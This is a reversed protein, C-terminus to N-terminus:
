PDSAAFDEKLAELDATTLDPSFHLLRDLIDTTEFYEGACSAHIFGSPEFRAQDFFVLGIRWADKAIMERCCRCRARGTPSRHAGDIRPLRRHRVGATAIQTLCDHRPTKPNTELAELLPQPRKYAACVPHFWLTAEGDGYPNPYREGFRLEDLDIALGCGRCKARGSTAPEIVHGM